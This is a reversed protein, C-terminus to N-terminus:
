YYALTKIVQLGKCGLRINALLSRQSTGIQPLSSISIKGVFMLCPHSHKSFCELKNCINM